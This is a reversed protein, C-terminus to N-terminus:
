KKQGMDMIQRWQRVSVPVVSLRPLRFLEWDTSFDREKMVALPVPEALPDGAKVEVVLFRPDSERPDPHPGRVVEGTGVVAREKGTHYILVPDGSEMLAMNKLALPSRVGDWLTRGERVLDTFSYDRPETKLLWCAGM